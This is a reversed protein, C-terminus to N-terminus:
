NDTANDDGKSTNFPDDKADRRSLAELSYNQQQMYPTDGGKVPAYNFKARAENPTFIGGKVGREYFDISSTYDMRILGELNFFAELGSKKLELSEDLLNEISEIHTQLCDTYYIENLGEVKQGQPISSIGIKFPPVHFASCVIEGSLKLQEILQSDSAPVNLPIYKMDNSLIATRGYNGASYNSNWKERINKADDEDIKGPAVLIGSPRSMNNFFNVANKQISIGQGAALSCAMIPSLGVLPHYFCNIRDHIIESAPVILGQQLCTLYDVGLQYFVSGSTDVLPKVLDPNLVLLQTVKGNFIDRYKLVYTNGRTLKSVLWGEFFQQLTQFSNPKELVSFKAKSQVKWIGGQKKRLELSLKGVDQSILSICAFVAHFSLLDERKLEQNQQWAGAFPEHIINHWGSNSPVSTLSKEMNGQVIPKGGLLRTLFGM